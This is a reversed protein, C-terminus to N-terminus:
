YRAVEYTLATGSAKLDAVLSEAEYRTFRKARRPNEVTAHDRGFYSSCAFGEKRIRVLSDRPAFTRKAWARM